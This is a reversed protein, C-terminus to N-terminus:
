TGGGERTRRTRIRPIPTEPRALNTMRKNASESALSARRRMLPTSPHPRWRRATRTRRGLFDEREGVWRVSRTGSGTGTLFSWRRTGTPRLFEM